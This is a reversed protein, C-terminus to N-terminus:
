SLTGLPGGTGCGCKWHSRRCGVGLSQPVAELEDVGGLVVTPEIDGLDFEIDQDALAEFRRRSEM